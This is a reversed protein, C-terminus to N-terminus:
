YKFVLQVGHIVYFATNLVMQMQETVKWFSLIILQKVSVHQIQTFELNIYDLILLDQMYATIPGITGLATTLAADSGSLTNYSTVKFGSNMSVKNVDM